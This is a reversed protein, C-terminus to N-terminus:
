DALGLLSEGVDIHADVRSLVDRRIQRGIPGPAIMDTTVFDRVDHLDKISQKVKKKNPVDKLSERIITYFAVTDITANRFNSTLFKTNEDKSLYRVAEDAEEFLDSRRLNEAAVLTVTYALSNLALARAKSARKSFAQLEVDDCTHQIYEKRKSNCRLKSMRVDQELEIGWDRVKRYYPIVSDIPERLTFLLRGLMWNVSPNNPKITLAKELFIVAGADDGLILSILGLVAYTHDSAIEYREDSGYNKHNVIGFDCENPFLIVDHLIKNKKHSLSILKQAGFSFSKIGDVGYHTNATITKIDRMLITSVHRLTANATETDLGEFKAEYSCRVLPLVTITLFNRTTELLKKRFQVIELERHRLRHSEESMALDTANSAISQSVPIELAVLRDIDRQLLVDYDKLLILADNELRGRAEKYPNIRIATRTSVLDLEVLNTKINSIRPLVVDYLSAFTGLAAFIVVVTALSIDSAPAAIGSTQGLLSLILYGLFIGALLGFFIPATKTLIYETLDAGHPDHVLFGGVFGLTGLVIVLPGFKLVLNQFTNIWVQKSAGFRQWRLVLLVTAIVGGVLSVMFVSM